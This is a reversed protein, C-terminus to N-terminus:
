ADGVTKLGSDRLVSKRRRSNNMGDPDLFAQMYSAGDDLKHTPDANVIDIADDDMDGPREQMHVDQTLQPQQLDPVSPDPDTPQRAIIDIGGTVDYQTLDALVPDPTFLNGTQIPNHIDLGMPKNYDELDPMMPDPEFEGGISYNIGPETLDYPKITCDVGVSMGYDGGVNRKWTGTQQDAMYGPTPMGDVGALNQPMPAPNAMDYGACEPSGSLVPDYPAPKGPDPMPQRAYGSAVNFPYGDVGALNMQPINGGQPVPHVPEPPSLTPEPLMAEIIQDFEGMYIRRRLKDIQIIM